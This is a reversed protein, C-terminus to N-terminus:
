LNDKIYRFIQFFEALEGFNLCTLSSLTRHSMLPTFDNKYYIVSDWASIFASQQKNWKKKKDIILYLRLDEQTLNLPTTLGHKDMFKNARKQGYENMRMYQTFKGFPVHGAGTEGTSTLGKLLDLEKCSLDNYLLKMYETPIPM